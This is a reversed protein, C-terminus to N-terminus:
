LIGHVSSGPSCCNVPDRLTPTPCSEAVESQSECECKILPKGPPALPLFRGALAPCTLSAPEIGPDPLDEPPPRLLGSWYEQRSFGVSLPAQCAASWLMAFFVYSFYNLLCACKILLFEM